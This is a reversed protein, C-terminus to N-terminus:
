ARIPRIVGTRLGARGVLMTSSKTPIGDASRTRSNRTTGATTCSPGHSAQNTGNRKWFIRTRGISTAAAPGITPSRCAVPPQFVDRYLTRSWRLHKEDEEPNDWFNGVAFAAISDREAVATDQPRLANRKGGWTVFTAAAGRWGYDDSTLGDFITRVQSGDLASRLLAGQGEFATADGTHGGRRSNGSCPAHHVAM